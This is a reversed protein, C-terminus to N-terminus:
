KIHECISCPPMDENYAITCVIGEFAYQKMLKRTDRPVCNLYPLFQKYTTKASFPNKFKIAAIFLRCIHAVVEPPLDDIKKTPSRETTHEVDEVLETTMFATPTTLPFSFSM